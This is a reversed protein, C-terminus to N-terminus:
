VESMVEKERVADEEKMALVDCLTDGIKPFPKMFAFPASSASRITRPTSNTLYKRIINARQQVALYAHNFYKGGKSFLNITM